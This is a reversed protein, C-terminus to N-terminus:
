ICLLAIGALGAILGIIQNKSLKEKFIVFSFVVSAILPVGNVIPFFVASEIKGSLYLNIINMIATMLGMLCLAIIIPLLGGKSEADAGSKKEKNRYIFYIVFSLVTSFAFAIMLFGMLEDKASTSQHWKQLLGVSASLLMSAVSLVFWKVNPKGGSQNKYNVSMAMSAFMFAIGIYKWVSPAPDSFILYGSIATIVTSFNAIVTTYSWPGINIAKSNVIGQAMTAIGFLLGLIITLASLAFSFKEVICIILCVFACVVSNKLYYGSEAKIYKRIYYTSYLGYVVSDILTIVLLLIPSFGSLFM